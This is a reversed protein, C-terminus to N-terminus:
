STLDCGSMTSAPAVKLDRFMVQGYESFADGGTSKYIWVKGNNSITQYDEIDMTWISNSVQTIMRLKGGEYTWTGTDVHEIAQPKACKHFTVSFTGDAHFHSLAITTAGGYTAEEYWDGVISTEAAQAASACLLFPVLLLIRM